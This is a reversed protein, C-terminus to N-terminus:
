LNKVYGYVMVQNQTKHNTDQGSLVRRRSRVRLCYLGIGQSHRRVGLHLWHLGVGQPDIVHRRCPGSVLFVVGWGGGGGFFGSVGEGVGVKFCFGGM